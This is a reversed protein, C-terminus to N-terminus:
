SETFVLTITTQGATNLEVKINVVPYKSQQNEFDVGELIRSPNDALTYGRAQMQTIFWEAAQETPWASLLQLTHTGGSSSYALATFSSDLPLNSSVESPVQVPTAPPQVLASNSAINHSQQIQSDRWAKLQPCACLLLLAGSAILGAAFRASLRM